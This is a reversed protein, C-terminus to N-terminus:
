TPVPTKDQGDCMSVMRDTIRRNLHCKELESLLIVCFRFRDVVADHQKPFRKYTSKKSNNQEHSNLNFGRLQHGSPFGVHDKRRTEGDRGEQPQNDEFVAGVTSPNFPCPQRGVGALEERHFNM